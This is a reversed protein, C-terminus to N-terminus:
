FGGMLGVWHLFPVYLAKGPGRITPRFRGLGEFTLRPLHGQPRSGGTFRLVESETFIGTHEHTERTLPIGYHNTPWTNQQLGPTGLCVFWVKHLSISNQQGQRRLRCLWCVVRKRFFHPKNAKTGWAELFWKALFGSRSGESRPGSGIQILPQKLGVGAAIM